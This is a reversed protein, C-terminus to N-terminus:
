KKPKNPEQTQQKNPVRNLQAQSIKDIEKETLPPHKPVRPDNHINKDSKAVADETAVKPQVNIRIRLANQLIARASIMVLAILKVVLAVIKAAVHSVVIM